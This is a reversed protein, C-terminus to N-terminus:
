YAFITGEHSLPMFQGNGVYQLEVATNQGGQLHGPTGTTTTIQSGSQLYYIQGPGQGGIAAALINGDASSVISSWYQNPVNNSTWTVGADSSTFISGPDHNPSDYAAVAALKTGDSSSAVSYWYNIPAGSQTWTTGGDRSTYIPGPQEVGGSVGLGAVALKLGDASSALSYFDNGGGFPVISWNVGLDLSLAVAGSGGGWQGAVILRSGDASWSVAEVQMYTPQNPPGSYVNGFHEVVPGRVNSLIYVHHSGSNFGPGAPGTGEVAALKTGDASLAVNNWYQPNPWNPDINGVPAWNAGSDTSLYIAPSAGSAAAALTTGDGSSAVSVWDANTASTAAWTAGSDTSMYISGNFAAVLQNGSASAAIARWSQSPTSAALSWDLTPTKILTFNPAFISQGSNQMISWGGVGASSVRVIDGPNPAAPLTVTVPQASKLLYGTNALAQVTASAPVQWSVAGNGTFSGVFTNGPNALSVATNQFGSTLVSQGDVTVGAGGTAFTVGGGARVSFQNSMTSNFPANQADAWVFSGDNTARAQQGAAFSFNGSAVNNAGGPVTSSSGNAQNNTGGGISGHDANLYNSEGGGIHGGTANSQVSNGSGGGITANQAQSVNYKGGGVTAHDGSATNGEGGGISTHGASATNTLGGGITAHSANSSTMNGEGGGVTSHDGGLSHVAGGGCAAHDASSSVVNGEGGSVTSHHGNLLNGAGGGCAAATAPPGVANNKGGGISSHDGAASNLEGGAITARLGGNLVVNGLGGAITAHDTNTQIVNRDGGSITSSSANAQILNNTGGAITAHDSTVAIINAQGGGVFAFSAVSINGSGFPTWSSAGPALYVGANPFSHSDVSSVFRVGGTARAAFENDNTSYFHANVSDSWVFAGVNTADAYTGAAFAYNTAVNDFGGPITALSGTITNEVGGGIASQSSNAEITNYIGGAITSSSGNITNEEGGGITSGTASASLVNLYGGPITSWEGRASNELGGGVSAYQSSAGNYSGGSVTAENATCANSYGGGITAWGGNVQINNGSGGGISGFAASVQNSLLDGALGGYNTAGGGAITAGYVGPAVYNSMSGGIVNPSGRGTTGPELRLARLYNVHLELANTDTTGLFNGGAPSTGGNGSLSWGNIGTSSAITLTNGSPTITVNSGAALTVADELGNVSKVVQGAAIGAATIGTLGAGNGTFSTATISGFNFSGGTTVVENGDVTLGAGGTSFTVGGGARVDFQNSSTSAFPAFQSDAWVFSGRHVAQAQQGAALSYAGAALNNAGGPITAEYGTNTNDSGGGIVSTYGGNTNGFGGSITAYQGNAINLEGGAVVAVTGAMNALGGAVVGFSGTVSNTYALGGRNSAGGGGITAGEVGASVNNNAAGGVLNPAGEGAPGPELRLGRGGNAWLELPENDTTGLFNIGPTTSGNGGTQWFNTPALGGVAAANVNTLGAGNGNFSNAPNNLAVAGSYSGALAAAPVTGSLQTAPLTGLLNSSAGAMIAYPVPLVPQRPSLTTFGIAAGNTRVALELWSPAGNFVGPGFDLTAQFLGNSVATASNTIPGSVVHGPLNTSDYVIFTIDFAGNAPAGNVGLSGQYVFATGQAFAPLSLACTLFCLSVFKLTLKLKM